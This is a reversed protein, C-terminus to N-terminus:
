CIFVGPTRSVWSSARHPPCWLLFPQGQALYLCFGADLLTKRPGPSPAFCCRSSPAVCRDVCTWLPGVDRSGNIDIFVKTFRRGGFRREGDRVAALVAALDFADLCAFEVLGPRGFRKNAIDIEMQTQDACMDALPPHRDNM